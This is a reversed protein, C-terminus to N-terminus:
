FNANNELTKAYEVMFDFLIKADNLNGYKIAENFAEEITVRLEEANERTSNTALKACTVLLKERTTM